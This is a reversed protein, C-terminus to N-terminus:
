RLAELFSGIFSDMRHMKGPPQLWIMIIEKNEFAYSKQVSYLETFGTYIRQAEDDKSILIKKTNESNDFLKCAEAMSLKNTYIQISEFKESCVVVETEIEIGNNLLVTTM